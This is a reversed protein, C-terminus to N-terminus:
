SNGSFIRDIAESHRPNNFVGSKRLLSESLKQSNMAEKIAASMRPHVSVFASCPRYNSFYFQKERFLLNM